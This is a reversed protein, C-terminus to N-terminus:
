PMLEEYARLIGNYIGEAIEAQGEKTMLYELDSRNSMYGSEVIIAPVKAHHLILVDDNKMQIIGKNKLPVIKSIEESFIKAM